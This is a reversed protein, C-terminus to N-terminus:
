FVDSGVIQARLLPYFSLLSPFRYKLTLRDVSSVIWFFPFWVKSERRRLIPGIKYRRRWPWPSCSTLTLVDVRMSCWWSVSKGPSEGRGLDRVWRAHCSATDLNALDTEVYSAIERTGADGSFRAMWVAAWVNGRTNSLYWTGKMKTGNACSILWRVQLRPTSWPLRTLSAGPRIM